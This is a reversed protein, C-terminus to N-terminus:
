HVAHILKKWTKYDLKPESGLYFQLVAKFLLQGAHFRVEKLLHKLYIM